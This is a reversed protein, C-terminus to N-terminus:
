IISDLAKRALEVGLFTAANAPFSRALAPGVGPFFAKIGGKAYINKTTQLISIPVNSSQQTSKITDIPFVGLWMSVGAFGGATMIAFLSLDEGPSSLEKKLYEYTAFYLASGPGDRALTAVSGKFISRLGGTKYMEAVVGAMSKSKNGEQIQMMVKVREFPAAVLTTPIASIFGATSIEKIEFQDISKGTYTSVLRKGVDYGWFSVAFMPTVGLLPPLVGRYLGTLGDKAITQKVCQVSSNYLGTQLRVKVLDFPHGTLVACIGGFGGAAFSKVNDALASDVDDM